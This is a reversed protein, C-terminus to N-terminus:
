LTTSLTIFFTRGNAPLLGPGPYGASRRTAYRLDTLNSVGGKVSVSANVFYTFAADWVRYGPLKGVTAIANPATTNAADTFVSSVDSMQVSASVKKLAYTVSARTINRPANEVRKGEITKTPDSLLAPNNWSTYRADTFAYSTTISLTGATPKVGLMALPQWDFFLEAGRSRSSGINTKFPANNVTLSGIRNNYELLFASVDFVLFNRIKGRYGIDANYGSADKLNGDVVETTSQPTLESFTVPRFAQSINAYFETEKSIHYESGIGALLVNRVSSQNISNLPAVVSYGSANQEIREYRLGPILQFHKGIKFQNEIFAAYNQTVYDLNRGWEFGNQLTAITIDFDNGTTGLGKQHRDIKGQYVRVGASLSHTNRLLTYGHLIRVESGVNTYYDQDVQRPNYSNISINFTDAINIDRVFGVSSREALTAFVKASLKTNNSLQIDTTLALVNWPASFWNRARTSQQADALFQEDTLGGPQQSLYTSRTYEFRTKIKPNFQYSISAYGTNTEYESNARWGDASRHHFFAYYSLKKSVGGIATYSNFLGFSGATQSSEVSVPKDDLNEKIVYNLLGGFQPGNQLASAGRVIEIRSLAESPPTYYAEPYGFVESSIDYGNQRVNFEWSRNPSLGRTAISTQIGSGDNEWITVGPVRSFLQRPNNTALDANLQPVNVVESKKGSYITVGDVEPFRGLSNVESKGTVRLENLLISKTSDTQQASVYSASLLISLIASFRKM